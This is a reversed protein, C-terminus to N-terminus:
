LTWRSFCSNSTDIHTCVQDGKLRDLLTVCIAASKIGVEHTIAALALAEMEINLVGKRRACNLFAFKDEETYNCFAGDLRGQGAIRIRM